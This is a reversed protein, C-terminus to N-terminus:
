PPHSHPATSVVLYGDIKLPEQHLAADFRNQTVMASLKRRM